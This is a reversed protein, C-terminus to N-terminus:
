VGAPNEVLCPIYRVKIGSFDGHGLNYALKAKSDYLCSSAWMLADLGGISEMVAESVHYQFFDYWLSWCKIAELPEHVEQGTESDMYFRDFAFRGFSPGGKNIIMIDFRNEVLNQEGLKDFDEQLVRYIERQNENNIFDSMVNISNIIILVYILLSVFGGFGTTFVSDGKYHM